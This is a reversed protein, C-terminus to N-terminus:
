AVNYLQDLEGKLACREELSKALVEVSRGITAKAMELDQELLEM